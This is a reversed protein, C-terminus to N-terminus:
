LPRARRQAAADSADVNRQVGRAAADVCRQLEDIHREDFLQRRAGVYSADRPAGHALANANCVRLVSVFFFIVATVSAM